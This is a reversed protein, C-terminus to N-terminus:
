ACRVQNSAVAGLPQRSSQSFIQFYVHRLLGGSEYLVKGLPVEVLRLHPFLREREEGPLANLIHNRKPAPARVMRLGKARHPNVWLHIRRKTRVIACM